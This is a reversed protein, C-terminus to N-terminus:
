DEDDFTHYRIESLDIQAASIPERRRTHRLNRFLVDEIRCWVGHIGKRLNRRHVHKGDRLVRRLQDLVIPLDAVGEAISLMERPAGRVTSVTDYLTKSLSAGASPVGALGSLLGIVSFPDM